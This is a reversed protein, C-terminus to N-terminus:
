NARAITVIVLNMTVYLFLQTKPVKMLVYLHKAQFVKILVFLGLLLKRLKDMSFIQCRVLLLLVERQINFLNELVWNINVNNTTEKM